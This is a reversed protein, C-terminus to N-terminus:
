QQEELDLGIHIFNAPSIEHAFQRGAALTATEERSLRLRIENLTM